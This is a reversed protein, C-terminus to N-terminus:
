AMQRFPITLFPVISTAAAGLILRKRWRQNMGVLVATAIYSLFVFGHIFGAISVPWDGVKIGYKLIM